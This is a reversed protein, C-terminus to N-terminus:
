VILYFDFQINHNIFHKLLEKAYTFISNVNKDIRQVRNKLPNNINEFGFNMLSCFAIAAVIVLNTLANIKTLRNQHLNFGRSKFDKFLTEISFRRKYADMIDPANDLTSLLYLPEKYIKQNFWYLFNVNKFKEKSFEIDPIFFSTQNKKLGLHEPKFEEGDEYMLSNCATRVVYDIHLENQCCDQLEISDFEGDGLLTLAVDSTLCSRIASIGGRIVELHMDTPFHGKKGEKVVWFLPISRKGVVVSLMLVVHNKGMQSGDIVVFIQKLLGSTVKKVMLSQLFQKFYPLYHVKYSTHKNELFRKAHIEKSNSQIDQPLGSGIKSLGSKETNIMGSVLGCLTNVRKLAHGTLHGGYALKISKQLDSFVKNKM